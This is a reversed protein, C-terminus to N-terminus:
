HFQAAQFTLRHQGGVASWLNTDQFSNVILYIM